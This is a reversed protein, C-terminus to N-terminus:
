GAKNIRDFMKTVFQEYIEIDQEFELEGGCRPCEGVLQELDGIGNLKRVEVSKQTEYDCEQCIESIEFSEVIGNHGVFEPIMFFQNVIVTSCNLFHIKTKLNIIAKVWERVGCSNIRSVGAFDIWVEDGINTTLDKFSCTEDLIGSIKVHQKDTWEINLNGM